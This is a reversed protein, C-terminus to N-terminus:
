QIFNFLITPPTLMVVMEGLFSHIRVVVVIASLLTVLRLLLVLAISAVVLLVHAELSSYSFLACGSRRLGLLFGLM